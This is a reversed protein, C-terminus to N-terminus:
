NRLSRIGNAFSTYPTVSSDNVQQQGAGRAAIMNANLAVVSVDLLKSNVAAIEL